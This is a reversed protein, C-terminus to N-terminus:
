RLTKLARKMSIKPEENHALSYKIAQTWLAECPYNDFFGLLHRISMAIYRKYHATDAREHQRIIYDKFEHVVEVGKNWVKTQLYEPSTYQALLEQTNDNFFIDDAGYFMLPNKCAERGIMVASVFKLHAIAEEFNHINGNLEIPCQPFNRAINYVYHYKLPPVTRNMEPNIGGIIASRAHISIRKSGAAICHSVYKHLYEYSEEKAMGYKSGDYGIRCKISVPISLHQTLTHIMDASKEIDDMLYIGFKKQRLKKSPCGANINIEDYGLDEARKSAEVLMDINDSGIQFIVPHECEDLELSKLPKRQFMTQDLVMDTYLWTKKTLMRLLIRFFKETHGIMPAISIRYPFEDHINM